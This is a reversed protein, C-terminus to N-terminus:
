NAWYGAKAHVRLNRRKVTVRIKRYKGDVSANSPAYAIEYREREDDFARRIGSFLDNNDEFFIGGTASALQAMASKNEQAIRDESRMMEPMANGSTWYADGTHSADGLGSSAPTYVGRSDLTYVVVNNKQALRLLESLQSQTDRENYRWEPDDPFYASAIGTLERGPILNFGDSILVLTRETPMGGMATIITKLEEFYLKTLVATREASSEIFSRVRRLIDSCADPITGRVRVAPASCAQPSLSVLIRRLAESDAAISGVEGDLVSTQFKKGALANLVLSADRTSDQIVQIQRSLNMLAYQAHPDNEQKFFKQLATRAQFINGIASHLTDVCVLYTRTPSNPGVKASAPMTPQAVTGHAVPSQAGELSTEYTTGFAVIRQPVEDEFVEFDDRHLNSVPHGRRDTVAVQVLVQRVNANLTPVSPPPTQPGRASGPSALALLGIGM